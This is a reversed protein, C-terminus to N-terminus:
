GWGNVGKRMDFGEVEVGGGKNMVMERLGIGMEEGGEFGLLWWWVDIRENLM